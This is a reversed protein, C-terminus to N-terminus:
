DLSSVNATPDVRSGAPAALLLHRVSFRGLESDFARHLVRGPLYGLVALAVLPYMYRQASLCHAGYTKPSMSVYHMFPVFDTDIRRSSVGAHLREDFGVAFGAEQLHIALDFDEHLGGSRCMRRRVSQWVPRLLAMNAGFLYVDHELLRALRKRAHLDLTNIPKALSIDYYHVSGSVADLTTSTFIHQAAAVWGNSILTDADIRGIIDGRAADFGADRAFVVGQRSERLVRVFPYRRAVAVTDDDSNNDVVIVEFPAVTQETIADLCAALREGENYVPIVISVRLNKHM